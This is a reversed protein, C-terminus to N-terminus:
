ELMKKGSKLGIGVFILIIGFTLYDWDGRFNVATVMHNRGAGMELIQQVINGIIFGFGSLFFLKSLLALLDSIGEKKPDTVKSIFKDRLFNLILIIVYVAIIAMVLKIFLMSFDSFISSEMNFSQHQSEM